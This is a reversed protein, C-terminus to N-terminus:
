PGHARTHGRHFGDQHGPDRHSRSGGCDIGFDLVKVVGSPTVFFNSPKIDRHVFGDKHADALEECIQIGWQGVDRLAVSGRKLVVDLGEGRVMEMVLFPVRDNGAGTEGLEHITVINHHQLRATIRAERLFSRQRGCTVRPM